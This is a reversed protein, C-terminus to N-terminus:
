RSEKLDMNAATVQFRPFASQAIVLAQNKELHPGPKKEDQYKHYGVTKSTRPDVETRTEEKVLPTFSRVMWNAAHIKTRLVEVLKPVPMGHHFLYELAVMDPGSAGGGDEGGAQPEWSRFGATAATYTKTGITYPAAIRKADDSTIRYDVVDDISAPRASVLVCAIAVVAVCAILRRRTVPEAPPYAIPQVEQRQRVSEPQIPIASNSLDDDPIFGRNRIYFRISILLPIEFPLSAIGASVVYYAHGWRFLLLATSTAHVTYHCLLLPVLALRFFPFGIIVGAIGVELGRIFFPQNPYTAHGFGWIFGAIIIAAIRSRFIREFFPISFARSLFEESLSPLFGAFIVAIWPVATNLMADYPTEAPSWAGFREAILYFAVQYALFFAVLSYGIIFSLFVRKSALAKRQWLKPIALHQPLRERYLVEGSGVVGALAMAVVIGGGIVNLIIFRAFFAPYSTTTDYGAMSLPLENLTTGGVLIVSVVAVGGLLRLNVDGRLLRIIFIVVAAVASIFFLVGDVKGALFNKSRLERYDRQWQDPVRVRQEYKSVRDGDVTVTHRYPAGAPHISQSDWTFIRQTRHPLGRESQAVLQLDPLKAGIRTLFSEATRRATVPDVTPLARDEPIRDDYGVIEGTPAVDVQFEEEQLPKFWRHHWWWIRVDHRMLRNATSLGLTRELFIKAMEDGDFVAGHKYDRLDIRQADPVARALPLSSDRNYRFDTSAEPFAAYFWNFVIFLSLAAIGCCVAILVWDRRTLRENM